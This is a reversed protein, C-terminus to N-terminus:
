EYCEVMIPVSFYSHEGDEIEIRYLGCPMEVVGGAFWYYRRGEITQVTIDIDMEEATRDANLDELYVNISGTTANATIFMFPLLYDCPVILPLTEYLSESFRLPSMVETKYRHENMEFTFDEVTIPEFYLVDGATFRVEYSGCEIDYDGDFSHIYESGYAVTVITLPLATWSSKGYEAIEISEVIGSTRVQFPLLKDSVLMPCCQEYERRVKNARWPQM